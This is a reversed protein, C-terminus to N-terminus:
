RALQDLHDAGVLMAGLQMWISDSIPARYGFEDLSTRSVGELNEFPLSFWMVVDEGADWVGDGTLWHPGLLATSPFHAPVLLTPPGLHERLFARAENAAGEIVLEHTFVEWPAGHEFGRIGAGISLVRGAPLPLRGDLGERCHDWSRGPRCLELLERPTSAHEPPSSCGVVAVLSVASLTRM